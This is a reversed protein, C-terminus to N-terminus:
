TLACYRPKRSQKNAMPPTAVLRGVPTPKCCRELDKAPGAEHDDAILIQKAVSARGLFLPSADTVDSDNPSFGFLPTRCPTFARMSAAFGQKSLPFWQQLTLKAGFWDSVIPHIRYRRGFSISSWSECVIKGGYILSLSGALWVGRYRSTPCFSM